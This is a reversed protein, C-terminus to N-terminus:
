NVTTAEAYAEAPTKWDLIKRPRNNLRDAIRNLETQSHAALNTKKPLYQRLWRNMNENSGRQWPSRKDCFYVKTGTAETLAEHEAMEYGRDWTLTLRQEPPVKALNARLADKVPEAKIGPLKVVRILRTRREVLTAVASPRSGMVLDGEWHGLEKRTEVEAPRDHISTINRIQGRGGGAKARKPNRVQRGSRLKCHLGRRLAKLKPQYIALYICEHSARMTVDDPYEIPLRHAIQEPSWELELWDIVQKGLQSEKSLRSTRRRSRQRQSRAAAQSPRYRDRGGNRGVERSITTHCRGLQAAIQRFSAGAALGTAIRERETLDLHREPEKVAPPRVGGCDLVYRRIEYTTRGLDRGVRRLSHGGRWRIWLQEQEDETLMRVTM